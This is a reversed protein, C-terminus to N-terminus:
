SATLIDEEFDGKFDSPEESFFHPYHIKFEDVMTEYPLDHFQGHDKVYEMFLNGNSNYPQFLSDNRGDFELPSVKFLKCIYANFAPTAKVWKDKLFLEAYGHFVFIDTRMIEKLRKTTLHNRVNAFGIRSPIGVARALAALAIAKEVCFGYRRSIVSSAKLTDHEFSLHYPDYKIGDRVSYYLKIAQELPKKSNGISVKAFEIVEKTDSDVFKAPQLYAQLGVDMIM